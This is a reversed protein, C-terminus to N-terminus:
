IYTTLVVIEDNEDIRVPAGRDPNLEIGGRINRLHGNKRIGLATDGRKTVCQQIDEFRLSGTDIGYESAPRFYIEAGGNTFLEEFVINLEPRLAVHALIRSLILPSILIEGAHQEFLKENEPDMLEIIIEPQQPAESLIDRLLVYGFITRADAEEGSDLRDSSLMLINDYTNPHLDVLDKLATYDGNIHKVNVTELISGFRDLLVEREQTPVLSIIDIDFQEERYSEFESLLTPVKRNWGLILIRRGSKAVKGGISSGRNLSWFAHGSGPLTDEYSEALFVFRNGQEAIFGGAPNLFPTLGEESERLVGMLIAKPFLPHLTEVPHGTLEPLERIYIQNSESHSLLEAYIHSLGQHRVNQALLRSILSDSPIVSIEGPYASMAVPIKQTDFLEAVLPPLTDNPVSRNFTSISLLSKVTRTDMIPSVGSPSDAGPLIIVGAKSFNVRNLDEIRLPSGSRLIIQRQKWFGGLAERLEHLLSIEISETLIVIRLRGAGIRTLFRMLRGQSAVIEKVITKTRNTWGLILIHSKLSVPTLGNEFRRITANLWQTMIAILAGMFLVYGLITVVTSLTRLFAGQDDGLYGPDSLRLFAWWSADFLDNFSGAFIYALFGSSLSVLFILGAIILLQFHAGGLLLRELIYTLRNVIGKLM